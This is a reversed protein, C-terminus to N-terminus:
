KPRTLLAFILAGGLGAAVLTLEVIGFFSQAKEADIGIGIVRGFLITVPLPMLLFLAAGRARWGKLTLDRPLKIQGFILTYIGAIFVVMELM